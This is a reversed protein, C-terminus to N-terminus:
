REEACKRLALWGGGAKAAPRGRGAGPSLRGLRDARCRGRQSEELVLSVHAHHQVGPGDGEVRRRLTVGLDTAALVHPGGSVGEVIEPLLSGPVEGQRRVDGERVYAFLRM